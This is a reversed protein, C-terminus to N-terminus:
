KEGQNRNQKRQEVLEEVQNDFHKKIEEESQGKGWDEIDGAETVYHKSNRNLIHDKFEETAETLWSKFNADQVKIKYEKWKGSLKIKSEFKVLCDSCFKFHMYAHKDLWKMKKSCTPCKLPMLYDKRHSDLKNVTQKLGDKITWTKGKEEWIDGEVRRKTKTEFGSRIKTKDGYKGSILNRMRQVKDEAIWKKM